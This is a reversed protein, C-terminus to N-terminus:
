NTKKWPQDFNMQDIISLEYKKIVHVLIERSLVSGLGGFAGAVLTNIMSVNSTLYHSSQQLNLAGAIHILSTLMIVTGIFCATMSNRTFFGDCDAQKVM